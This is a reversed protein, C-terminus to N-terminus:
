ILGGILQEVVLAAFLAFLYALSFSFLKRADAELGTRYLRAARYLFLAGFVASVVAYFLGAFDM